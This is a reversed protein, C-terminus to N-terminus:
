TSTLIFLFTLIFELFYLSPDNLLLGKLVTSLSQNITRHMVRLVHNVNAFLKHAMLVNEEHMVAIYVNAPLCSFKSRNNQTLACVNKLDTHRLM